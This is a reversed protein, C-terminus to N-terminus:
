YENIRIREIAAQIDTWSYGHRYLFAAAKQVQKRDSPDSLKKALISDLDGAPDPCEQLADEWYDRPIGRRSLEARIRGPGYGKNSYHHVIASAYLQEDIYHHETLWSIVAESNEPSAGKQIMKQSLEKASYQRRSIWELAKERLLAVASEQEIHLRTEPDVERGAFLRFATVVGLTSPTEEGTEWVLSVHELSTKRLSTLIM